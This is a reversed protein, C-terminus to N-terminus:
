SSGLRKAFCDITILSTLSSNIAHKKACHIPVKQVTRVRLCVVDNCTSCFDNQNDHYKKSVSALSLVRTLLISADVCTLSSRILNPLDSVIDEYLSCMYRM